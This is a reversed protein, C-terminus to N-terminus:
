ITSISRSLLRMSRGTLDLEYAMKDTLFLAKERAQEYSMASATMIVSIMMAFSLIIKKM